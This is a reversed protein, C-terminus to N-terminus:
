QGVQQYHSSESTTQTHYKKSTGMGRPTLANTQTCYLHLNQANHVVGCYIEQLFHLLLEVVNGIKIEKESEGKFIKPLKAQVLICFTGDIDIM